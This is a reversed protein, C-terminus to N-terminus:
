QRTVVGAAMELARRAAAPELRAESAEPEAAGLKSRM